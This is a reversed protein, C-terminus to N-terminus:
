NCLHVNQGKMMISKKSNPYKPTRLFLIPMCLRGCITLLSNLVGDGQQM